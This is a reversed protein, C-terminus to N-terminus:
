ETSVFPSTRSFLSRGVRTTVKAFLRRREEKELAKNKSTFIPLIKLWNQEIKSNLEDLYKLSLRDLGEQKKAMLM